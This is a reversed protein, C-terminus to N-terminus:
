LEKLVPTHVVRIVSAPPFRGQIQMKEVAGVMSVETLALVRLKVDPTYLMMLVDKALKMVKSTAFNGSSTIGESTSVCVIIAGDASVGDYAFQGGWELRLQKPSFTQGFLKPLVVGVVYKEAEKNAKSTDAM